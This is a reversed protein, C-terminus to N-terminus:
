RAPARMLHLIGDFPIVLWGPRNNLEYGLEYVAKDILYADLLIALQRRDQPLLRSDGMARLYARLYTGCIWRRWYSAWNAVGESNEATVLGREALTHLATHVAYHFSRIMGAVDSIPSRKLRRASLARAPEGEFDLIVFDTGTSLVQGLHYDGHVRIRMADLRETYLQKYRNLLPEQAALVARVDPQLKEPLTRARRKLLEFNEMVLNRMSQYLSRQYHSSFPEPAFDPDTGAGLALHLEATRVGLVRASELYTGIAEVVTNSPEQDSLTLLSGEPLECRRKEADYLLVRDFYRGLADLTYHWGDRAGTIFQTLLGVSRVAGPTRYELTGGLTPVNPFRRETLYGTIEVDPNIGPEPRRFLKFLLRDAFIVATNSHEAKALFPEIKACDPGCLAEFAGTSRLVLSGSDGRLTTNARMGDVLARPFAKDAMADFL